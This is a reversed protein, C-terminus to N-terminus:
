LLSEKVHWMSPFSVFVPDICFPCRPPGVPPFKPGLKQTPAPTVYRSHGLHPDQGTDSSKSLTGGADLCLGSERPLHM